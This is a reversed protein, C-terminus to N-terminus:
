RTPPRNALRGARLTAKHSAQMGRTKGEGTTAADIAIEARRLPSVSGLHHSIMARDAPFKRRDTTAITQIEVKKPFQIISRSCSRSPGNNKQGAPGLVRDNSTQHIQGHSVFRRESQCLHHALPLSMSRWMQEVGCASVGGKFPSVNQLLYGTFGGLDDAPDGNEACDDDPQVPNTDGGRGL